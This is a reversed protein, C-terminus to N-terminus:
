CGNLGGGIHQNGLVQIYFSHQTDSHRGDECAANQNWEQRLKFTKMRLKAQLQNKVRRPPVSKWGGFVIKEDLQFRWRLGTTLRPEM